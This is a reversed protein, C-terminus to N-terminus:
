DSSKSKGKSKRRKKGRPRQEAADKSSPALEKQAASWHEQVRQRTRLLIRKCLRRYTVALRVRAPLSQQRSAGGLIEDDEEASYEHAELRQDLTALLANVVAAEAARSHPREFDDLSADALQEPAALVLRMWALM